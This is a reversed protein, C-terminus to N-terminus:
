LSLLKNDTKDNLIYNRKSSKGNEEALGFKVAWQPELSALKLKLKYVDSSLVSIAGRRVERMQDSVKKAMDITRKLFEQSDNKAFTNLTFSINNNRIGTQWMTNKISDVKRKQSKLLYELDTFYHKENNHIFRIFDITFNGELKSIDKIATQHIKHSKKLSKLSNEVVSDGQKPYLENESRIAAQRAEIIM